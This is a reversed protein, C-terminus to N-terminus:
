RRSNSSYGKGVNIVHIDNAKYLQCKEKKKKKATLCDDKSKHCRSLHFAFVVYQLVYIMPNRNQTTSKQPTPACINSFTFSHIFLWLFSLSTQM